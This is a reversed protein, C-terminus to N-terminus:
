LVWHVYRFSFPKAGTIRTQNAAYQVVAGQLGNCLAIYFSYTEYNLRLGVYRAPFVTHQLAKLTVSHRIYTIRAIFSAVM